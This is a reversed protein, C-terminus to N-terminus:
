GCDNRVGASEESSIISRAEGAVYLSGAVVIAEDPGTWERALELAAAVDGTSSVPVGPFMRDVLRVIDVPDAARPHDVRTAIVRATLGAFPRLMSPLDKDRFAGVVLTWAMPRFEELMTRVLGDCGEPNHAGDILVLPSHDVVEIRAPVVLAALGEQVAEVPLSRSLLEEVAAVAVAANSAQHRGHLPVYLNEYRGYIGDVDMAWGGVSMRLDEIRFDRGLTRRLTAVREVRRDAVSAVEDTLEGTVLVAGSKVIALKERAIDVPTHGLYEAHDISVGTLVAVEAELVNTADLRGGMGVEVVGVDAAENAFHAFAAATTLEFYTAREGTQIELLDVFAAVDDVAQAFQEPTADEGSVAFREEVRDLHPSTYTGAKLGLANVISAAARTVTTKGNTGAVHIVPYRLQPSGMLETLREIRELGPKWGLEIHRDLYAIAEDYNM